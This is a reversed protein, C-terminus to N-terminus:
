RVTPQIIFEDGFLAVIQGGIVCHIKNLGGSLQNKKVIHSTILGGATGLVVGAVSDSILRSTNFNGDKNKWVSVNAKDTISNLTKTAAAIQEKLTSTSKPVASTQPDTQTQTPKKSGNICSKNDASLRTGPVCQSENIIKFDTWGNDTCQASCKADTILNDFKIQSTIIEEPYPRSWLYKTDNDSLRCNFETPRTRNKEHTYIDGIEDPQKEVHHHMPCTMDAIEDGDGDGDFSKIKVNNNEGSINAATTKINDDDNHAVALVRVGAEEYTICRKKDPSLRTGPKCGSFLIQTDWGDPWCESNCTADSELLELRTSDIPRWLVRDIMPRATAISGLCQHQIIDGIDAFTRRGERNIYICKDNPPPASQLCETRTENITWGSICPNAGAAPAARTILRGGTTCYIECTADAILKDPNSFWDIDYYLKDAGDFYKCSTTERSEGSRLPPPDSITGPFPNKIRCDAMAPTSIIATLFLFLAHLTKMDRM